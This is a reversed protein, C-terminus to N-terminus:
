LLINTNAKSELEIGPFQAVIEPHAQKKENSRRNRLTQYQGLSVEVEALKINRDQRSTRRKPIQSRM